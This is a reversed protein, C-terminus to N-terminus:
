ASARIAQQSEGPGYVRRVCTLPLAPWYRGREDGGLTVAKVATGERAEALAVFLTGEAIRAGPVLGVEFIAGVPVRPLAALEREYDAEAVIQEPKVRLGKGAGHSPEVVYTWARTGPQEKVVWTTAQQPGSGIGPRLRVRAGIAHVKESM